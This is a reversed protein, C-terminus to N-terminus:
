SALVAAVFRTRRRHYARLQRELQKRDGDRHSQWLANLEEALAPLVRSEAGRIHALRDNVREVARVHEGSGTSRAIEAFLGATAGALDQDTAVDTEASTSLDRRSRRVALALLQENWDYLDRLAAESMQPVRFGNHNPAEVLQEGTLRHLADRM